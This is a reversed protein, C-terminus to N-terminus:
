LDRRARKQANTKKKAGIKAGQKNYNYLNARNSDVGKCMNITKTRKKLLICLFSVSFNFSDRFKKALGILGGAFFKIKTRIQAINM